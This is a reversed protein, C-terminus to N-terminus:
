SEKKSLTILNTGPYYYSLLNEYTQGQIAKANAGYQSFGFGSGKGKCIIRLNGEYQTFYFNASNLYFCKQFEEGTITKDGVKMTLVYGTSDQKTISLQDMLKEQDLGSINFGKELMSAADAFTIKLSTIGVSAEVDQSSDVTVLYPLATGTSEEYNRTKGANAYHYCALIPKDEYFLIQDKTSYIVNELMSIYSAAKEEGYKQKISDLTATPLGIEDMTLADMSKGEAELKQCAYYVNTRAIVAMAKMTDLQLELPVYSALVSMIYQDLDEGEIATIQVLGDTKAQKAAEQNTSDSATGSLLLTFLFPFLLVGVIVGVIKLLTKGM